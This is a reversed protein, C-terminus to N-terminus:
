KEPKILEANKFIGKEVEGDPHTLTGKGEPYGGKNIEGVYRRGSTM